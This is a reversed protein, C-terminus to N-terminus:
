RGTLKRAAADVEAQITASATPAHRRVADRFFYTPRTGRRAIAWRVAYAAKEDGLVRRAWGKLPKIPVWHPRAGYEVSAAYQESTRNTGVRGVVLPDGGPGFQVSSTISTRLIGRDVPANRRASDAIREVIINVGRLVGEALAQQIKARSFPRTLLPIKPIDVVVQFSIM